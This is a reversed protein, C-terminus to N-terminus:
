EKTNLQADRNILELVYEQITTGHTAVFIKLEQKLAPTVRIVISKKDKTKM